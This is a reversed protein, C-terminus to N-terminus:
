KWKASPRWGTLALWAAQKARTDKAQTAWRAADKGRGAATLAAMREDFDPRDLGLAAAKFTAEVAQPRLGQSWLFDGMRDWASAIGPERDIWKRLVQVGAAPGQAQAAKKALDFVQDLPGPLEPLFAPEPVPAARRHYVLSNGLDAVPEMYSGWFERWQDLTMGESNFSRDMDAFLGTELRHYVVWEVGERQLRRALKEATGAEAAWRLLTPNEWQYDFYATRDIPYAILSTFLLVRDSRNSKQEVWRYAALDDPAAYYENVLPGMPSALGTAYAYPAGISIQGMVTAWVALVWAMVLFARVLRGGQTWALDMGYASVALFALAALDGHRLFTSALSWCLFYVALFLTPIQWRGKPPSKFWAWGLFALPGLTVFMGNAPTLFARFASRALDWPLRSAPGATERLIAAIRASDFGPPPPFHTALIPFVPNGVALINRCWWGAVPLLPLLVWGLEPKAQPIGRIKRWAWVGAWGALGFLATYKVSLAGGLLFLTARATVRSSAPTPELLTLTFILALYWLLAGEVFGGTFLPLFFPSGLLVLAAARRRGGVAKIWDGMLVLCGILPLYLGMKALPEGGLNWYGAILLDAAKPMNGNFNIWGAPLLGTRSVERAFRFHDVLADWYTPPAFAEFLWPLATIGLAAKWGNPVRRFETWGADLENWHPRAALFGLLFFLSTVGPCILGHVGFGFLWMGFLITAAGWASHGAWPQALKSLFLARISRAWGWFGLLLLPVWALAYTRAAWQAPAGAPDWVVNGHSHIPDPLALGHGLAVTVVLLFVALVLRM